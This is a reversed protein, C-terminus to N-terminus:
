APRRTPISAAPRSCGNDFIVHVLNKPRYRALTALTGLSMLVSGDGDFVVVKEQPLHM